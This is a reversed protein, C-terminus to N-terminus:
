LYFCIMLFFIISVTLATFYGAVLDDMMVGYGGALSEFWCIPWPKFIDFFRFLCFIVLVLVLPSCDGRVLYGMFPLCLSYAFLMGAVEDIVIYSPDKIGVEKYIHDSAWVGLAALGFVLWFLSEVPIVSCLLLAVMSGWTGPMYPLYGVGACTGIFFTTKRLFSPHKQFLADFYRLGSLITIFFLVGSIWVTYFDGSFNLDMGSTLIFLKFFGLYCLFFQVVTKLKGEWSTKVLNGSSVGYLRLFTVLLDRIIVVYFLIPSLIAYFTLIGMTSWLLIKDALPDLFAGLETAIGWRRALFGDLWDTILSITFLVVGVLVAQKTNLLLAWVILPTLVIRLITLSLPLYRM